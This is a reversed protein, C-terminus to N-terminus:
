GVQLACEFSYSEYDDCHRSLPLGAFWRPASGANLHQPSRPPQQFLTAFLRDTTALLAFALALRRTIHLCGGADSALCVRRQRTQDLRRM